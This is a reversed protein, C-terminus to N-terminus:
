LHVSANSPSNTKPVICLPLYCLEVATMGAVLYNCVVVVVVVVVFGSYDVCESSM